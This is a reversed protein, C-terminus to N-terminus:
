GAATGRDFYAAQGVGAGSWRLDRPDDFPLSSLVVGANDRLQLNGGGSPANSVTIILAALPGHGSTWALDDATATLTYTGAPPVSAGTSLQADWFFGAGAVAIDDLDGSVSDGWSGAATGTRGLPGPGGFEGNFQFYGELDAGLITEGTLDPVTISGSFSLGGGLDTWVTPSLTYTWVEPSTNRVILRGAYPAGVVEGSSRGDLDWLTYDYRYGLDQLSYGWIRWQTETEQLIVVEDSDESVWMDAFESSTFPLNSAAATVVVQYNEVSVRCLRRQGSGMSALVAMAGYSNVTAYNVNGPATAAAGVQAPQKGVRWMSIEPGDAVAYLRHGLAGIVWNAPAGRFLLAQQQPTIPAVM